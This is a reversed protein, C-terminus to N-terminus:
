DVGQVQIVSEIMVQTLLYCNVKSSLRIRVEQSIRASLKCHYHDVTNNPHHCNHTLASPGGLRSIM